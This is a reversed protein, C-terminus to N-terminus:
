HNANANLCIIAQTANSRIIYLGVLIAINSLLTRIIIKDIESKLNGKTNVHQRCLCRIISFSLSKMPVAMTTSISFYIRRKTGQFNHIEEYCYPFILSYNVHFHIFRSSKNQHSLFLCVFVFTSFFFHFRSKM